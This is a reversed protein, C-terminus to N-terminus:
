AEDRQAKKGKLEKELEQFDTPKGDHLDEGIRQLTKFQDSSIGRPPRNSPTSALKNLLMINPSNPDESLAKLCFDRIANGKATAEPMPSMPKTPETLTRKITAEPNGPPLDTPVVPDTAHRKLASKKPQANAPLPKHLQFTAPTEQKPNSGFRAEHTEPEETPRSPINIPLAPPLQM